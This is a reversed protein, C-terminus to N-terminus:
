INYNTYINFTIHFHIAIMIVVLNDKKRNESIMEGAIETESLLM